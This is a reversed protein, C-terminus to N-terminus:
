CASKYISKHIQKLAIYTVTFITSEVLSTSLRYTDNFCSSSNAGDSTQSETGWPGRANEELGLKKILVWGKKSQEVQNLILVTVVVIVFGWLKALMKLNKFHKPPRKCKRKHQHRQYGPYLSSRPAFKSTNRSATPLREIRFKGGLAISGSFSSLFYICKFLLPESKSPM